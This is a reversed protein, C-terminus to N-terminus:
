KGELLIKVTYDKLQGTKPNKAQTKHGVLVDQEYRYRNEAIANANYSRRDKLHKITNQIAEQPVDPNLKVLAQQLDNLLVVQYMSPPKVKETRRELVVAGGNDKPPMVPTEPPQNPNITAMAEIKDTM